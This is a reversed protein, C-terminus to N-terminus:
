PETLIIPFDREVPGPQKGHLLYSFRSDYLRLAACGVVLGSLAGACALLDSNGNGVTAGLGAGLLVLVAPTLYCLVVMRVFAGAQISVVVPQGSVMRSERPQALPLELVVSPLAIGPRCLSKQACGGCGSSRPVEIRLQGQDCGSVAATASILSDRM